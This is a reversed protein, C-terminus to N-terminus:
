LEQSVLSYGVGYQHGPGLIIPWGHFFGIIGAYALIKPENNIDVQDSLKIRKWSTSTIVWVGDETTDIETMVRILEDGMLQQMLNNAEAYVSKNPDDPKLKDHTELWLKALEPMLRPTSCQIIM